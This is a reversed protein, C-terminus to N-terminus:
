EKNKRYQEELQNFLEDNKIINNKHERNYKLIDNEIKSQRNLLKDYELEDNESPYMKNEIEKIKEEINFLEIKLNNISLKNNKNEYDEIKKIAYSTGYFVKLDDYENKSFINSKLIEEIDVKNGNKVCNLYLKKLREEKMDMLYENM